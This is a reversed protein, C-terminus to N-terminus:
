KVLYVRRMVGFQHGAKTSALHVELRKLKNQKVRCINQRHVTNTNNLTLYKLSVCSPNCKYYPEKSVDEVQQMLPKGSALSFYTKNITIKPENEPIRNNSM